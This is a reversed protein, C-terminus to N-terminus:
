VVIDNGFHGRVVTCLEIQFVISSKVKIKVYKWFFIANELKKKAKM